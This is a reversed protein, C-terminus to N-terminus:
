LNAYIGSVRNVSRVLRQMLSALETCEEYSFEEIFKRMVARRGRQIRLCQKRGQPTAGVVIGRGDDSAPRRVALGSATLRDITRTATSADVYLATALESMRWAGRTILLELADTQGPDLADPGSGYLAEKLSAVGAGRRLERWAAFIEEAVAQLEEEDGGPTSVVSHVARSPEAAQADMTKAGLTGSETEDKSGGFEGMFALTHPCQM